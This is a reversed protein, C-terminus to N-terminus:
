IEKKSTHSLILTVVTKMDWSLVLDESEGDLNEDTHGPHSITRDWKKKAHHTIETRKLFYSCQVGSKKKAAYAWTANNDQNHQIYRRNWSGFPIQLATAKKKEGGLPM